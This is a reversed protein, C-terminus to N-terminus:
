IMTDAEELNMCLPKECIVHKGAEAAEITAQCHLSNPLCLDVLDVEPLELLRRYDVFAHPIRHKSAFQEAHGPTPSAVAVLEADPVHSYSEAHIEAVFQSGVIAIGVKESRTM